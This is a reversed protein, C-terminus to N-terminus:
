TVKSHLSLVRDEHLTRYKQGIKVLIWIHSCIEAPHKMVLNWSYRKLRKQTTCTYPRFSLAINGPAGWSHSRKEYYYWLTNIFKSNTLVHIHLSEWFDLIKKLLLGILFCSYDLTFPPPCDVCSSSCLIVATYHLCKKTLRDFFLPKNRLGYCMFIINEM